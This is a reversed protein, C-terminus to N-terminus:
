GNASSRSGHWIMRESHKPWQTTAFPDQSQGNAVRKLFIRRAGSRSLKGSTTRPLTNRPVLDIICPIGSAKAIEGQLRHVLARRETRKKERCEVVLVTIDRDDPTQVAFASTDGTRLGPQQEALGELDQPWINRGNIVMMDKQRGTVVIEGDDRYVVDGTDLWGEPSLTERTLAPERFYGSMVSPGRIFLTGCQRDSVSRGQADRVQIEYGPLPPGCRVFHRVNKLRHGAHQNAPKAQQFASLHAADVRDIKLGRGLPSFSVALACEAMGYCAILADPNFGAPALTDAFYNLPEPRITEAGVGAVRWTSLDYLQVDSNRLRRACLEYGFPPSFAITAHNKTMLKMWLRPRMAFDRPNLYDVSRQSAMPALVMGVLGMDHYFPLWSMARDRSNVRIGYKAILSLNTMVAQQTILVGRPFRTSGSTYQLYAPEEPSSPRLSSSAPSLDAFRESSGMFRLDLGAAAEALFSEFPPQAM